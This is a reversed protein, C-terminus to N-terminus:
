ATDRTILSQVPKLQIANKQVEIARCRPTNRCLAMISDINAADHRAKSCQAAVFNDWGQDATTHTTGRRTEQTM